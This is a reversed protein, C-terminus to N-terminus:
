RELELALRHVAMVDELGGKLLRALPSIGDCFPHNNPQLLWDAVGSEQATNKALVYIAALYKLRARKDRDPRPEGITWRRLTRSPVNLLLSRQALTLHLDKSMLLFAKFNVKALELDLAKKSAAAVGTSKVADPRALNGDWTAQLNLWFDISTGLVQGLCHAEERSLRGTGGVLDKLRSPTIGPVESIGKPALFEEQLIVGPHTPVRRSSETPDEGTSRAAERKVSIM